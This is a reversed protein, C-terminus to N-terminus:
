YNEKKKMVNKDIKTKGRKKRKQQKEYYEESEQKKRDIKTLHEKKIDIEM